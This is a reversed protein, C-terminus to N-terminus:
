DNKAPNTLIARKPKLIGNEVEGIGIFQDGSYARVLERTGFYAGTKAPIVSRLGVFGGHKFLDADRPELKAAPIGDLGFDLPKLCEGLAADANHFMKELFDLAYADKIDFGNSRTRRIM